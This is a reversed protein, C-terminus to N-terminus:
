PKSLMKLPHGGIRPPRLQRGDLKETMKWLRAAVEEDHAARLSFSSRSGRHGKPIWPPACSPSLAWRRARCGCTSYHSSCEEPVLVQASARGHEHAGGGSARASPAEVGAREFRRQLEYTFQLLALRSRGYARMGAYGGHEFLLNDFEISGMRLAGSSVSVVRAAPADPLEIRLEAVAMRGRTPSRCALITDAGHRALEKAAARGVGSNGGTVVAVKATLDPIADASWYEHFRRGDALVRPSRGTDQPSQACRGERDDVSWSPIM